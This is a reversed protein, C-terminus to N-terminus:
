GSRGPFGPAPLCWRGPDASCSGPCTCGTINIKLLICVQLLIELQFAQVAGVAGGLHLLLDVLQGHDGGSGDVEKGHLQHHLGLVHLGSQGLGHLDGGLELGGNLLM